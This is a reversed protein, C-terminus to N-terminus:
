SGESGAEKEGEEEKGKAIVEPEEGEAEEEPKEEEIEVRPPIVIAITTEPDDLFEFDTHDAIIDKLRKADHIGLAAVDIEINEPIHRPLCRINVSRPGHELVGGMEKVGVPDGTLVLPVEIKIKEGSRIQQFDVHLIKGTSPHVQVEKIITKYEKGEGGEIDLDVIATEGHTRLVRRFEQEDISLGVPDEKLGYLVAPLKGEARLKRAVGKGSTDRYISKLKFQEM